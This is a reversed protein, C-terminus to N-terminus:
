RTAEHLKLWLKAVAEEPTPGDVADELNSATISYAIWINLRKNRSIGGMGEGCEEILESLSPFMFKGTRPGSLYHNMPFGAKALIEALEENM